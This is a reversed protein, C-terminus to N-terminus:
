AGGVRGGPLSIAQQECLARLANLNTVGRALARKLLILLLEASAFADYIARHRTHARLDFYRLWDDLTAQALRAEPFLAPGLRALDLWPNVLRVGLTQRLARDLVAQDFPAHFAVLPRKGAYGLFALLAQEPEQGAAQSQPGIGHILINDRTNTAESRLVAAFGAGPNLKFNEVAVAGIALLRDRRADLGSTEVDVVRFGTQALPRREDASPLARWASVAQALGPPLEVHPRFLRAIWTM